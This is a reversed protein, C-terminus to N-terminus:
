CTDLVEQFFRGVEDFRASRDVENFLEHRSDPVVIHRVGEGAMRRVFQLTVGTDVVPDDAPLLFLTPVGLGEGSELARSQAALVEHYLRATMWGHVLPDERHERIKAEDHTLLEPDLPNPVPLSPFVRNLVRGMWEKWAPIPVAADLWPASLCLAAPHVVRSQVARLAVLGGMSHGLLLLPREDSHGERARDVVCRLDQTLDSFHRAHGRRGGSRGHGRLDYGWVELDLGGLFAALEGYRGHHEGWGHVLVVLGRSSEQANWVGVHLRTGDDARVPPRPGPATDTM